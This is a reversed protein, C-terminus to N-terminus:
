FEMGSDYLEFMFKVAALRGVEISPEFRYGTLKKDRLPMRQTAEEREVTLHHAVILGDHDREVRSDSTYYLVRYQHPRMYRTRVVRFLPRALDHVPYCVLDLAFPANGTGAWGQKAMEVMKLINREAMFEMSKTAAIAYSVVRYYDGDDI